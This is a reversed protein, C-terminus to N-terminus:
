SRERYIKILNKRTPELLDSGSSESSFMPIQCKRKLQFNHYFFHWFNGYNRRHWLACQKGANASWDIELGMHTQRLLREASWAHIMTAQVESRECYHMNKFIYAYMNHINLHVCIICKCVYTISKIHRFQIHFNFM